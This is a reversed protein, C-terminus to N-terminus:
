DGAVGLTEMKEVNSNDVANPTVVPPQSGFYLHAGNACKCCGVLEL